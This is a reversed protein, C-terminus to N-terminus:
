AGFNVFIGVVAAIGILAIPHLKKFIKQLTFLIVAFIIAKFNFLSLINKSQTFKDVHLLAIKVVGYLAASILGISAPRLGTFAGKVYKNDKFAALIKAVIYIVIIAPAVLGLTAVIGGLIGATNYGAYTAMNVGIPGPTSESIAIMDAVDKATFWDSRREALDYLFPITALGGGISFLGVKAFEFFLLLLTMM